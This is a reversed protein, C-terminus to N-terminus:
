KKLKSKLTKIVDIQMPDVKRIEALYLSVYDTMYVFSLVQEWYQVFISKCDITTKVYKKVIGRTIAFRKEIRPDENKVSFFIAVLDMRIQGYGVIENHNMEPIVREWALVKSNENLQQRFRTALGEFQPPVYIVVTKNHIKKAISLASKRLENEIHSHNQIYEYIEGIFSRNILSLKYLVFMLYIMSFVIAARPPYDSPLKIHDIHRKRATWEIEGGSSICVVKAHAKIAEHLCAITEETDGSYSSVIVLTHENVYAPLFYDNVVQFPVRISDQIYGQVIKAGIGSGGMGAVVVSEIKNRSSINIYHEAKLASELQNKLGRILDEM